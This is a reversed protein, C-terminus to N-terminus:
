PKIVVEGQNIKCQCALRVDKNLSFTKEQDTLESLNEGGEVVDTMCTGCLGNRCSFKVGLKEAADRINTNDPVEISREKTNSIKAM